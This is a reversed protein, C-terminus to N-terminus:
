LIMLHELSLNIGPTTGTSVSSMCFDQFLPCLSIKNNIHYYALAISINSYLSTTELRRQKVYTAQSKAAQTALRQMNLLQKGGTNIKHVKYLM